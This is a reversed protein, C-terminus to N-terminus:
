LIIKWSTKEDLLSERPGKPPNYSIAKVLYINSLEIFGEIGQLESPSLGAIKFQDLPFFRHTKPFINEASELWAAWLHSADKYRPWIKNQIHRYELIPPNKGLKKFFNDNEDTCFRQAATTHGGGRNLVDKLIWGAILGQVIYTGAEKAPPNKRHGPGM